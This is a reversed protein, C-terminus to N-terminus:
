VVVAVSGAKDGTILRVLEPVCSIALPVLPLM